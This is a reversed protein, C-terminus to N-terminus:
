RLLDKIPHRRAMLYLVNSHDIFLKEDEYAEDSALPSVFLEKAMAVSDFYGTMVGDWQEAEPGGVAVGEPADSRAHNQIYGKLLGAQHAQRGLYGHRLWHDSFTSRDISPLKPLCEVLVIPGDGEPEVIVQEDVFVEVSREPDIAYTADKNAPDALAGTRFHEICGTSGFWLLEVADYSEREPADAAQALTQRLPDEQLAHLQVYRRVAPNAAVVAARRELLHDHFETVSLGPKRRLLRVLKPMAEKRPAPYHDTSDASM